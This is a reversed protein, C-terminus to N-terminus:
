IVKAVQVKKQNLDCGSEEGFRKPVRENEEKIGVRNNVVQKLYICDPHVNCM